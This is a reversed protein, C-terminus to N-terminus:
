RCTLVQDHYTVVLLQARGVGVIVESHAFSTVVDVDREKFAETTSPHGELPQTKLM